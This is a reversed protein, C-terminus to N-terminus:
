AMFLKEALLAAFIVFLQLISFAFLARAAQKASEGSRLYFVRSAAALFLISTIIAAAAYLSHASGALWPLQAAICYLLSYVLIEIRTRAEGKVVPLMPVNARRYDDSKLLALAWFHPPTWLFIILFLLISDLTIHGSMSAAGIVPPLAGAAGGIVINQVTFRKLWMTYVVAYFFITFALLFAALWNAILGLSLVSALSLTLGFSLATDPDIKGSPVPRGRTRLMLADIDADYWMNLAGSAGAGVAICVLSAFALVPHMASETIAMGTLATFIVLSMVRPKLLALFDGADAFENRSLVSTDIVGPMILRYRAAADRVPPLAPSVAIDM